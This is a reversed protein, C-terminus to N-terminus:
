EPMHCLNFGIPRSDCVTQERAFQLALARNQNLARFPTALCGCGLLNSSADKIDGFWTFDFLVDFQRPKFRREQQLAFFRSKQIFPLNRGQQPIRNPEACVMTRREAKIDEGTGTNRRIHSIYDM